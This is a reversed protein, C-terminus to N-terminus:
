TKQKLPGQNCIRLTLTNTGGDEGSLEMKFNLTESYSCKM